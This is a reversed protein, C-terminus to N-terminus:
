RMAYGMNTAAIMAGSSVLLLIGTLAVMAFLQMLADACSAILQTCKKDALPESLAAAIKYLLAVAGLRLAPVIVLALLIVMGTVGVANKLMVASGIVTDMAESLTGGVMPMLSGVAFKVTKGSIGDFTSVAIGSIGILALFLTSFIGVLWKASDACLKSLGSFHVNGAITNVMSLAVSLSLLPLALQKMLAAIANLAVSVVAYLTTGSAVQGSSVALYGLAMTDYHMFFVMSDIAERGLEMATSIGNVLLAAVGSFVLFFTMKRLGKSEFSASLQEVLGSLMALMIISFLLVAQARLEGIFLDGIRSLLNDASLPNEGATFSSIWASLNFNPFLEEVAGASTPNLGESLNGYSWNEM